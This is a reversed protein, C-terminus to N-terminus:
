PHRRLFEELGPERVTGKAAEILCQICQSLCTCRQSHHEHESHRRFDAVTKLAVIGLSAAWYTARLAIRVNNM